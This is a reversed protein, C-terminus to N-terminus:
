GLIPVCDSGCATSGAEVEGPRHLVARTVGLRLTAAQESPPGAAPTGNVILTYGEPTPPPWILSIQSGTGINRQSTRGLSSALLTAAGSEEAIEGVQIQAAHPHGSEDVTLMYVIARSSIEASLDPPTSAM